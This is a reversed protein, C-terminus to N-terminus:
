VDTTVLFCKGSLNQSREGLFNPFKQLKKGLTFEVFNEKIPFFKACNKIDCFQHSHLFAKTMFFKLYDIYIQNNAAYKPFYFSLCPSM